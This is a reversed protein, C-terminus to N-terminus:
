EELRDQRENTDEQADHDKAVTRTKVRGKGTNRRVKGSIVGKQLLRTWRGRQGGRAKSLTM